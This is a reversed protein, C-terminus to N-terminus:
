VEMAAALQEEPTVQSGPVFPYFDRITKRYPRRGEELPVLYVWKTGVKAVLTRGFTADPLSEVWRVITQRMKNHLNQLRRYQCYAGHEPTGPVRWAKVMRGNVKTLRCKAKFRSIGIIMSGGLLYEIDAWKAPEDFSIEVSANDELEWWRDVMRQFITSKEPSSERYRDRTEEFTEEPYAGLKEAHEILESQSMQEVPNTPAYIWDPDVYCVLPGGHSGVYETVFGYIEDGNQDKLGAVLRLPNQSDSNYVGQCRGQFEQLARFVRPDAGSVRVSVRGARALNKYIVWEQAIEAAQGQSFGLEMAKERMIYNTM